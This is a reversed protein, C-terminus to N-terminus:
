ILLSPNRRFYSFSKLIVSKYKKIVTVLTKKSKKFSTLM